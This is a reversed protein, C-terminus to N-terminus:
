NQLRRVILSSQWDVKQSLNSACLMEKQIALPGTELLIDIALRFQAYGLEQQKRINYYAADFFAAPVPNKKLEKYVVALDERTPLLAADCSEGRMVAEYRQTELLLAEFDLGSPRISLCKVSVSQEGQYENVSVSFAIDVMDGEFLMLQQATMFFCLANITQGECTLRLKLHKGQSLPIIRELQAGLMAFVPPENGCGFPELTALGKVEELTLLSPSLVCDVGLVPAPMRELTRCYDQLAEDFRPIDATQLTLGAAMPHGGFRTLLHDCQAIAGILSFGEVSRGSGKATEGEISILIVPREFREVLRSCVIGAVGAHWGEGAFILLRKKVAHLDKEMMAAIDDVIKKELEKRHANFQELLAAIEAAEEQEEALLLLVATDATEMRGAANLRPALAFSITESTVPKGEQGAIRLLESIGVSPHESLMRLGERVILRNEGQLRVVDAVTAIALLDAFQYLLDYGQEGELACLLKFAVAAGCLDPFPYDCDARHPNIVAAAAPLTERPTHHDTVVVQLGISNAYEIEELASIGNDATLIVSAGLRKIEDIAPINLGYGEAREPIYYFSRAGVAEFYRKLMATACIGDCDYDGYICIMQGNQMATSITEVAQPMDKLLFPDFLTPEETVFRTADQGDLRRAALVAMVLAGPKMSGSPGAQGQQKINWRQPKM